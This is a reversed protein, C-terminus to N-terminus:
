GLHEMEGTEPDGMWGAGQDQQERRGRLDQMEEQEWGHSVQAVPLGQLSMKPNSSHHQPFEGAQCGSLGPFGPFPPPIALVNAQRQWARLLDPADVMGGHWQNRRGDRLIRTWSAKAVSFSRDEGDRSGPTIWHEATERRGERCERREELGGPHECSSFGWVGSRRFMSKCQHISLSRGHFAYADRVPGPEEM